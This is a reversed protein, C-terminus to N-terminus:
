TDTNGSDRSGLVLWLVHNTSLTHKNEFILKDREKALEIQLTAFFAPHWQLKETEQEKYDM